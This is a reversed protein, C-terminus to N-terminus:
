FLVFPRTTENNGKLSYLTYMYVYPIVIIINYIFVLVQGQAFVFIGSAVGGIQREKSSKMAQM